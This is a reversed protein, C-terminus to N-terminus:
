HVEQLQGSTPLIFESRSLTERDSQGCQWSRERDSQGCQWSRESDSQGCQWSRESDSQAGLLEM